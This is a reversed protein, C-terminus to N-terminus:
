PLELAKKYATRAIFGLTKRPVFRSFFLQVRNLFGPVYLYCRKQMADLAEAACSTADQLFATKEFYRLRSNHTMETKIGGPAFITLSVNDQHLEQYFSQAFNSIFAKSGAYAAQYPVPLLSAMSSILMIGGGNNKEILYPTFLSVLRVVSTVNTALLKEFASWELDLHSGFHTVGANLIVGYVDGVAVSERYVREVDEPHSLDAVIIRCQVGTEKELEAKLKQMPAARRAVLILNAKRERALQTALEKGLGSSAGTVLVWRSAFNMKLNSKQM